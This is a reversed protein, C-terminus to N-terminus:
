DKVPIIRGRDNLTYKQFPKILQWDVWTGVQAVRVVHCLKGNRRVHGALVLVSAKGGSVVGYKGNKAPDPLGPVQSFAIGWSGVSSESNYNKTISVGGDGSSAEGARAFAVTQAGGRADGGKPNYAVGYRQNIAVGGRGAMAVGATHNRAEGGDGAVVVANERDSRVTTGDKVAAERLSQGNALDGTLTIQKNFPETEFGAEKTEPVPTCHIACSTQGATIALLMVPFILERFKM